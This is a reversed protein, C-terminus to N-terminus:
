RPLYARFFFCLVEGLLRLFPPFRRLVQESMAWKRLGRHLCQQLFDCIGFNKFAKAM